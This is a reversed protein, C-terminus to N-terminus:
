RGWDANPEGEPPVQMLRDAPADLRDRRGDDM